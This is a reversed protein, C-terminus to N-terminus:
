DWGAESEKNPNSLGHIDMYHEISVRYEFIFDSLKNRNEMNPIKNESVGDFSVEDSENWMDKVEM